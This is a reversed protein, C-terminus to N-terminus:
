VLNLNKLNLFVIFQLPMELLIVHLTQRHIHYCVKLSCSCSSNRTQDQEWSGAGQERSRGGSGESKIGGYCGFVWGEGRTRHGRAVGGIQTGM